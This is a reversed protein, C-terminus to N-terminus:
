SLVARMWRKPDVTVQAIPMYFMEAFSRRITLLTYTKSLM